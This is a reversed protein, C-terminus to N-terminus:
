DEKKGFLGGLSGGYGPAKSASAIWREMKFQFNHSRPEYRGIKMGSNNKIVGTEPDVTLVIRGKKDMVRGKADIRGGAEGDFARPTIKVKKERLKIKQKLSKRKAHEIAEMYGKSHTKEEGETGPLQFGYNKKNMGYMMEELKDSLIEKQSKLKHTTREEVLDHLDRRRKRGALLASNFPKKQFPNKGDGTGGGGFFGRAM